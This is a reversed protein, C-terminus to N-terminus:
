KKSVLKLIEKALLYCHGGTRASVLDGDVFVDADQYDVGYNKADGLLNNHVTMKRGKVVESVPSLLWLGHCIVGKVIDKRAFVKKMFESAPPIKKVDETYRLRDSVMGAPVIVAAYEDLDKDTLAEFSENCYFPARFEHGQFTISDNGWLRSLFHPEFGAERFRFQYYFIENEYYDSEILIGIKNKM